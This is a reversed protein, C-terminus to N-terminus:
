GRKREENKIFSGLVPAFIYYIHLFHSKLRSNSNFQISNGARYLFLGSIRVVILYLVLDEQWDNLPDVFHFYHGRTQGM